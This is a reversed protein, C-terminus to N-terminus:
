FLTNKYYSLVPNLAPLGVAVIIRNIPNIITNEFQKDIDIKPAIEIPFEGPKFGFVECSKDKTHYFKIKDGSHILEYKTKLKNKNILYNFNGAARM